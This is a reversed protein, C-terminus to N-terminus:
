PSNKRVRQKAPAPTALPNPLRVGEDTADSFARPAPAAQSPPQAPADVNGVIAQGGAHVNVHEVTIKQRGKGRHKDLAALQREYLGMLKTAHKLNQDRGEFTHTEMMARRLAEMAANHTSIMQAALMGELESRPAIKQLADYAAKGAQLKQENTKWEPQWLSATVQDLLENQFHVSQSGSAAKMGDLTVRLSAKEASQPTDKKRKAM